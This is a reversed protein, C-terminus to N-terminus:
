VLSFSFFVLKFLFLYDVQFNLCFQINDGCLDFRNFTPVLLRLPLMFDLHLLHDIKLLLPLVKEFFEVAQHVLEMLLRSETVKDQLLLQLSNLLTKISLLSTNVLDQSRGINVRISQAHHAGCKILNLVDLILGDLGDLSLELLDTLSV